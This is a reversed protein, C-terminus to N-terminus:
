YLSVSILLIIPNLIVSIHFLVNTVGSFLFAKQKFFISLIQAGLNFEAGGIFGIFCMFVSWFLLLKGRICCHWSVFATYSLVGSVVIRGCCYVISLNQIRAKCSQSTM